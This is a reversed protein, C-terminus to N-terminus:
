IKNSSLGGGSFENKQRNKEPASFDGEGFLKALFYRATISWYM